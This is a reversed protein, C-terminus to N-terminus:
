LTSMITHPVIFYILIYYDWKQTNIYIYYEEKKPSPQSPRSKAIQLSNKNNGGRKRPLIKQFLQTTHRTCSGSISSPPIIMCCYSPKPSSGRRTNPNAQQPPPQQLSSVTKESIQFM